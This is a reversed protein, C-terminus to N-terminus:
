GRELRLDPALGGADSEGGDDKGDTGVSYVQWERGNRRYVLPYGSFPDGYKGAGIEDLGRPTGQGRLVRARLRCEAVLLRTRALTVDNMRLVPEASALVARRLMRGRSGKPVFEWTRYQAALATDAGLEGEVGAIEEGLADFFAKAKARSLGQVYAADDAVFGGLAKAEEPLRGAAYADQLEQLLLRMNAAENEVANLLPPKDGLADEAQRALLELTPADMKALGPAIARRAEDAVALGLSVDAAGGGTLAFGFRTAVGFREVARKREGAELDAAVSWALHRGMLRWGRRGPGIAEVANPVHATAVPGDTARELRPLKPDCVRAASKIHVPYFGTRTLLTPAEAEIERGLALLEGYGGTAVPAAAPRAWVKLPVEPARGCGALLILGLLVGRRM